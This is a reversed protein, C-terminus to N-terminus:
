DVAEADSEASVKVKRGGMASEVKENTVLVFSCKWSEMSLHTTQTSVCVISIYIRSLWCWWHRRILMENPANDSHVVVALLLIKIKAFRGLKKVAPQSLSLSIRDRARSSSKEQLLPRQVSSVACHIMDATELFQIDNEWQKPGGPQESERVRQRTRKKEGLIGPTSYYSFTNVLFHQQWTFM